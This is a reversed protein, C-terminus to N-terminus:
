PTEEEGAPTPYSGLFIEYLLPGAPIDLCVQPLTSSEACIKNGKRTVTGRDGNGWKDSSRAVWDSSRAQGLSRAIAWPGGKVDGCPAATGTSQGHWSIVGQKTRM